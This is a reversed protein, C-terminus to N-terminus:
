LSAVSPPIIIYPNNIANGFQIKSTGLGQSLLGQIGNDSYSAVAFGVMSATCGVVAAGAALGSLGLSTALAASSIPSLIVGSMILAVIAGMLIPQLETGYNILQGIIGTLQGIIPSIFVGTLGGIIICIMPVLIIDVITKGVIQQGIICTVLAAVYAGAPDGVTLLMQGDIIQVSGGGISATVLCAFIILSPSGLSSAVGAGIAASMFVKAVGGIMIFLEFNFLHGLQVLITGVVLTALLGLGMGNLSKILKSKM